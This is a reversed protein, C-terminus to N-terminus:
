KLMIKLENQISQLDRENIVKQFKGNKYLVITPFGNVKYVPNPIDEFKKILTRDEDSDVIGFMVDPFMAALKFFTESFRICHPCWDAKFLILAVRYKGKPKLFQQEEVNFDSISLNTVNYVPITNNKEM